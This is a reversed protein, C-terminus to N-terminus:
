SAADFAMADADVMSRLSAVARTLLQSVRPASVGLEAAIDKLPREEFFRREIVSRERPSLRAIADCLARREADLELVGYPSEAADAIGLRSEAVGDLSMMTTEGGASCAERRQRRTLWDEKRLHDVIAGRIRVRAYWEFKPGREGVSKTLADMLGITGAAFLDDRQVSPPVRRLFTSVAKAVLHMHPALDERSVASANSTPTM